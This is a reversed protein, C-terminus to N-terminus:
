REGTKPDVEDLCDHKGCILVGRQEIFINGDEWQHCLPCEKLYPGHPPNKKPYWTKMRM